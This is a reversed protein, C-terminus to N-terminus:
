SRYNELLGSDSMKGQKFESLLTHVDSEYSM